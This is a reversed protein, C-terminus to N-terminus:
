QYQSSSKLDFYGVRKGTYTLTMNNNETYAKATDALFINTYNISKIKWQGSKEKHLVARTQIAYANPDIHFDRYNAYTFGNTTILTKDSSVALTYPVYSKYTSVQKDEKSQMYRVKYTDSNTQGKLDSSFMSLAKQTYDQTKKYNFSFVLRNFKGINETMETKLNTKDNETLRDSYDIIQFKAKKRGKDFKELKQIKTESKNEHLKKYVFFGVGLLAIVSLIIIVKKKM